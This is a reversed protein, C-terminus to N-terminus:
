LNINSFYFFQLYLSLSLLIFMVIIITSYELLLNRSIIYKHLGKKLYIIKVKLWYFYAIFRTFIKLMNFLPSLVIVWYPDRRSLRLWAINELVFYAVLLVIIIAPRLLTFPLLIIRIPETLFIFLLYARDIKLLWHKDSFLVRWYIFFNEHTAMGWSFSRQKLFAKVSNPADTFVTSPYFTVGRYGAFKSKTKDFLHALTTRQQDEGGFQGSHITKQLDIDERLFLGIAGSVNSVAGIKSRLAKSFFMSKRYEFIQLANILTKTRKPIVNFSVARYKKETILSTPIFIDEIYVDDDMVLVLPTKVKNIAKSISLAKNLNIKNEIVEVGAQRAVKATDDTSKDSVVIIQEKPIHLMVQRLTEPLVDAGNYCAIVCTVATPDFTEKNYQLNKHTRRFISVGLMLGDTSLIYLIITLFVNSFLTGKYLAVYFFFIYFFLLFIIIISSLLGSWTFENHVSHLTKNTIQCVHCNQQYSFNDMTDWDFDTSIYNKNINHYSSIWELDYLERQYKDFFYLMSSQSNFTFRIEYKCHDLMLNNLYHNHRIMMKGVLFDKQFNKLYKQVLKEFKISRHKHVVFTYVIQVSNIEINKKSFHKDFDFVPSIIKNKKIFFVFYNKIIYQYLGKLAVFYEFIILGYYIPWIVVLYWYLNHKKDTVAQYTQQLAVVFFISAVAITVFFALFNGVIIMLLAFYLLLWPELFLWTEILISYIFLIWFLFGVSKKSEGLFRRQGNKFFLEYRNIKHRIKHQIFSTFTQAKKAIIYSNPIYMIKAGDSRMYASLDVSHSRLDKVFIDYKKIIAKRFFTNDGGVLCVADLLSNTKKFAFATLYEWFQSIGQLSSRDNMQINGSAIVVKKDRFVKVANSIADPHLIYNSDLTMIIEGQALETGYQLIMKRGQSNQRRYVIRKASSNVKNFFIIYKKIVKLLDTNAGDNIIVLEVKDYRSSLVSEITTIVEQSKSHIPLIVSVYPSYQQNVITKQHQTYKLDFLLVSLLYVAQRFFIIAVFLFFLGHFKNVMLWNEDNKFLNLIFYVLLFVTAYFFIVAIFIKKHIFKM